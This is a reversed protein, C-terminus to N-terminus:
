RKTKEECCAALVGDASCRAGAAPTPSRVAISDVDIQAVFVTTGGAIEASMFIAACLQCSTPIMCTDYAGVVATPRAAARLRRSYLIAGIVM